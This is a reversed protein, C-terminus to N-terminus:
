QRRPLELSTTAGERDTLSFAIGDQGVSVRTFSVTGGDERCPRINMAPEANATDSLIEPFPRDSIERFRATRALRAQEPMVSSSTFYPQPPPPEGSFIKGDWTHLSLHAEALLLLHCPSYHVWTQAHLIEELDGASRARAALLPIEGRSVTGSSGNKGGPYANLLALTIGHSNTFLWTGGAKSDRACIGPVQHGTEISPPLSPPRAWKEDRNFALEYGDTHFSWAASCM